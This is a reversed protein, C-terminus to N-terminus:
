ERPRRDILPTRQGSGPAGKGGGVLSRAGGRPVVAAGPVPRRDARASSAIQPTATFPAPSRVLGWVNQLVYDVLKVCDQRSYFWVPFGTFVFTTDERGHYLTMIPTEISPDSGGPNPAPGGAGDVVKYLTDLTSREDVIDPDPSLNERIKNEVSLYEFDFRSLYFNSTPQGPRGPPFSDGLALAKNRMDAPLQLYDPRVTARGSRKIFFTGNWARIESRWHAVDYMFRGPILELLAASFISSGNGPKDFPIMNAYAAGGGFEWVLGGQRVYTALTNVRNPGSMYRLATIPQNRDDGSKSMLGSKADLVWVLHRYRGLVALPVTLDLKGTRTGVTDFEYGAFLGPSSLTGAPYGKWPKGGRAFLFSDLESKVPWGGTPAALSSTGPVNSDPTLRTDEVIGIERDFSPKVVTFRITALSTLSNNDTAEIYFRLVTDRLFPGVTARVTNRSATSWHSVDLVEDTRKTEDGVDGGLRWRYSEIDSGSPPLAYWNFTITQNYPVEVAVDASPDTVYGGSRSCYNFFENFVCIRPGLTAAFGVHFTLMNSDLSFVPSYAGAEDIAVVVFIYDANPTLNTYQVQTTDGGVTTWGKFAPAYFRRVSDPDLLAVDIPFEGGASLLKYKYRVPKQTLQGDPDSGSWSIRVSPTVYASLLHSPLPNTIHVEPAVTYSFFSRKVTDSAAGRNDVAYIAFTHYDSARTERPSSSDPQTASFPVLQEQRATSVWVVPDGPRKPYETTYVYHDVRGDPDNGIWNLRYYYFYRGVTDYPASTLQVTPPLNPVLTNRLSKSCGTIGLVGIAIAALSLVLVIRNSKM